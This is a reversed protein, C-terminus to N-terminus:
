PEYFLPARFRVFSEVQRRGRDDLDVFALGVGPPVDGSAARVWRVETVVEMPDTSGPLEVRVTVRDGVAFPRFTVVFVGGESVNETLGLYFNHDSVMDIALQAEVRPNKRRPDHVLSPPDSAVVFQADM